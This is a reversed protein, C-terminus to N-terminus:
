LYYLIVISIRGLCYISVDVCFQNEMVCDKWMVICCCQLLFFKMCVGGFILTNQGLLLDYIFKFSFAVFGKLIEKMNEGVM